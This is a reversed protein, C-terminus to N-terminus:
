RSATKNTTRQILADYKAALDNVKALYVQRDPKPADLIGRLIRTAAFFDELSTALMAKQVEAPHETCYQTFLAYAASLNAFRTRYRATDIMAADVHNPLLDAVMRAALLFSRLQWDYNKGHEKEIQALYRREIDEHVVGLERHLALENSFFQEFMPLIQAHLEHGHKAADAKYKKQAYYESAEKALPALAATTKALKVVGDDVAPLPPWMGPGTAGANAIEQAAGAIDPLGEVNKEKGTPGTKVDVWTAYHDYSKQVVRAAALAKDYIAMKDVVLKFKDDPLEAISQARSAASAALLLAAVVFRPLSNM